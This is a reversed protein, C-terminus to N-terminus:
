RADPMADGSIKHNREEMIMQYKDMIKKIRADLQNLQACCAAFIMIIGMNIGILVINGCNRRRKGSM